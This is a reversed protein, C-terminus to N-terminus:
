VMMAAGDSRPDAAADIRGETSLVLAGAHGMLEDFGGIIEVDHGAQMLRDIVGTDFRNEIRLNTAASGWTRGLLWRPATIAQQLPMRHIAHRSFIMAQTQPQGEGGMTGYCMLRGDSLHALAPQITHFPRRRPTLHNRQSSDLSFSTGRNQWTIGSTPLVVGSGFEWYLSQIMSVGNGHRDIAGLWVTDGRGAPEPWPLASDASIEAALEDLLATSLFSAAPKPMYAPDTIERDRIRFARKTSEVLAHIWEFTESDVIKQQRRLRDYLGLIMLSALGQTPPPMNYVTHDAVVTQLPTLGIARHNEFDSLRLPSGLQELEAAMSRALDGRYFDELGADVLRQLTDAIRPQKLRAGTTIPKGENMYVGAFGPQSALQDLKDTANFSLTGAAAVGARAYYIADELLRSRPLRGGLAQQSYELAQQWGSVTGAVTLASMPGREPIAALQRARFWDIDAQLASAGCADIGTVAREANSILWFNDGGAGNMHPYVVAITSAAALMAEVANGGDRLVRAGADAALHHPAVVGGGYGQRTILM